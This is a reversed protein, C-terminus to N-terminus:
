AFPCLRTVCDACPATRAACEDHAHTRNSKSGFHYLAQQVLRPAYGPVGPHFERLDLRVAQRKVWRARAEYGRPAKSPRLRDLARVIHTDVVVLSYGDVAPFWPTLGPALSPTSLVGVFMTALKRGIRPVAQFRSVLLDARQAPDSTVQTVEDFLRRVGADRWLRLWAATPLKGSDGMRRLQGTAEKVHCALGPRHGCDVAGSAKRVDCTMDFVDHGALADCNTGAVLQRLRRRSALSVVTSPAMGRQQRMIEVDRRAQYMSLGVFLKFLADNDGAALAERNVAFGGVRRPDCYFPIVGPGERVGYVKAFYWAVIRRLSAIAPETERSRTGRSPAPGNV